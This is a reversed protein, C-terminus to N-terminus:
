RSRIAAQDGNATRCQAIVQPRVLTRRNFPLLKEFDADGPRLVKGDAPPIVLADIPDAALAARRRARAPAASSLSLLIPATPPADHLYAM